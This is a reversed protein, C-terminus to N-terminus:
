IGAVIDIVAFQRRARRLDHLFYDGEELRLARRDDAGVDRGRAPDAARAGLHRDEVAIRFAFGMVLRRTTRDDEDILQLVVEVGIQAVPKGARLDARHGFDDGEVLRVPLASQAEALVDEEGGLCGAAVEALEFVFRGARHIQARGLLLPEVGIHVPVFEVRHQEGAPGAGRDGGLGAIRADLHRGPENGAEVVLLRGVVRQAGGEGAAGPALGCQQAEGVGELLRTPRPM